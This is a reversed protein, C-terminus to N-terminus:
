ETRWNFYLIKYLNKLNIKSQIYSHKAQTFIQSYAYRQAQMPWLVIDSRRCSSNCTATLQWTPVPILVWIMQFLVWTLQQAMEVAGLIYLLVGKLYM